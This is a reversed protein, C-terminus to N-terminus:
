RTLRIKVPTAACPRMEGKACTLTLVTAETLGTTSVIGWSKLRKRRRNARESANRRLRFDGITFRFRSM